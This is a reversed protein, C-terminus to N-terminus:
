FDIVEPCIIKNTELAVSGWSLGVGFGSLLLRLKEKTLKERLMEVLTLPISASSTNGYKGISHPVKEPAIRM